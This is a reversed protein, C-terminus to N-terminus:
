RECNGKVRGTGQGWGQDGILHLLLKGVMEGGVAVGTCDYGTVEQM